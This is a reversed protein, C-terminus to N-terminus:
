NKLLKLGFSLMMALQIDDDFYFTAFHLDKIFSLINFTVLSNINTPSIYQISKDEIDITNAILPSPIEENDKNLPIDLELKYPRLIHSPFNQEIFEDLAINDCSYSYFNKRRSKRSSELWLVLKSQNEFEKPSILTLHILKM